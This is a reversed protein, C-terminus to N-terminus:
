GGLLGYRNQKVIDDYQKSVAFGPAQYAATGKTNPTVRSQNAVVGKRERSADERAYGEQRVKADEAYKAQITQTQFKQTKEANLYSMIGQAGAMIAAGYVMSMTKDGMIGRLFTDTTAMANKVPEFMKGVFSDPAIGENQGSLMGEMTLGSTAPAATMGTMGNMEYFQDQSLLGKGLTSLGAGDLNFAEGAWTNLDEADLGAEQTAMMDWYDAM